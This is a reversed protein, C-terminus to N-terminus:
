FDLKSYWEPPNTNVVRDKLIASFFKHSKVMSYWDKVAQFHNWNIDGFYDIVSIHAGAAFDAVSIQDGALYKRSELIYEIYSFHIPLNKRANHINESSPANSAKQFRNFYRENTICRGIENYFKQDFWSQLRRVESRKAYNDGIFSKGNQYKEEIYEIIVSSGIVLNASSNDFLIPIEGAPNMAIFSKRKEWFNEQLM